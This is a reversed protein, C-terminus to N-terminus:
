VGLGLRGVGCDFLVQGVIVYFEQVGGRFVHYIYNADFSIAISTPSYLVSQM